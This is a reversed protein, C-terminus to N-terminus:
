GQQRTEASDRFRQRSCIRYIIYLSLGTLITSLIILLPSGSGFSGADESVRGGASLAEFTMAAANNLFHAFIPIWLSGTWFFLYGFLIGLFFRPLFGYFQLHMASFAFASLIIAVHINRTWEGLLRQIVGRFIFEEGFAPLIAIMLINLMFGGATETHLFADTLKGAEKEMGQMWNEIGSMSVPLKLAENWEIMGNLFPTLVVLMIVVLWYALQRPSTNLALYRMPNREFFFGALLPPIIFLGFSQLIQFYKLIGIAAPNEFDSLLAPLQTLSIGFIPQALLMGTLFVAGFSAIMLLIFFLLRNFPPLAGLWAPKM